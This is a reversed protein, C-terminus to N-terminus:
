VGAHLFNDDMGVAAAVAVGAGAAPGDHQGVALMHAFELTANGGGRVVAHLQLGGDLGQADEFLRALDVEVGIRLVDALADALPDGPPFAVAPAGARLLGDFVGVEPAFEVGGGGVVFDVPVPDFAVGAVLVVFAAVFEGVFGDGGDFGAVCRLLELRQQLLELSLGFCLM